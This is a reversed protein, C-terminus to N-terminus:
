LIVRSQGGDDDNEENASLLPASELIETMRINCMYLILYVFGNLQSLSYMEHQATLYLM